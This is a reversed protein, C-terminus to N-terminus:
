RRMRAFQYEAAARAWSGDHWAAQAAQAWDTVPLIGELKSLPTTEPSEVERTGTTDTSRNKEAPEVEDLADLDKLLAGENLAECLRACIAAARQELGAEAPLERAAAHDCLRHAREIAQFNAEPMEAEAPEIPEADFQHAIATM